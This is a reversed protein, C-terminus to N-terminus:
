QADHMLRDIKLRAQAIARNLTSASGEYMMEVRYYVCWDWKAPGALSSPKFTLVFRHGKYAHSDQKPAIDHRKLAIVEGM